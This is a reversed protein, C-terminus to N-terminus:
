QRRYATQKFETVGQLNIKHDTEGKFFAGYNSPPVQPTTTTSFVTKRSDNPLNSALETGAERLLRVEEDTLFNELIVYGEKQLQFVLFNLNVLTM